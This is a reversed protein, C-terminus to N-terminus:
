GTVRCFLRYLPVSGVVLAIMVAMAGLSILVTRGNRTM